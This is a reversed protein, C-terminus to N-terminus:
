SKCENTLVPTQRHCPQAEFGGLLQRWTRLESVPWPQADSWCGLSTRVLPNQVGQAFTLESQSGSSPSSVNLWRQTGLIQLTCSMHHHSFWHESFGCVGGPLHDGDFRKLPLFPVLRFHQGPFGWRGSRPYSSTTGLAPLCSPHLLALGRHEAVVARLSTVENYKEYGTETLTKSSFCFCLYTFMILYFFCIVVKM